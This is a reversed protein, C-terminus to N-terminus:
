APRKSSEPKSENCSVAYPRYKYCKGDIRYLYKNLDKLPPSKVIVCGRGKCARRFLTALGFGIIVSVLISAKETAMFQKFDPRKM